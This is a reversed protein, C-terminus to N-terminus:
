VGITQTPACSKTRARRSPQLRHELALGTLGDNGVPTCIERVTIAKPGPERSLPAGPRVDVPGPPSARAQLGLLEEPDGGGCSTSGRPSSLRTIDNRTPKKKNKKAIKRTRSTSMWRPLPPPRAPAKPPMPPWLAKPVLAPSRKVRIVMPTAATQITRHM